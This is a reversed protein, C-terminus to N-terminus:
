QNAAAKVNDFYVEFPADAYLGPSGQRSPVPDIRELTWAAPEPEGSPWAKGRARVKGDPLNEVRLKLHYWTEPKWSFSTLATRETEPQWSQLELRQHNGFLILQYRQAVVGADGMQRRKETARVDAEVTYDHWTDPGFYARARKTFPNNALKVLVKGGDMERAAFKGTTNIWFPPVADPALSDFNEAYPPPPIVRIRAVASLGAAAAKVQGAQPKGAKPATYRGDAAVAGSLQELSWAAPEERIFRGQADFLRAHLQVSEGPKLILETPAVQLHAPAATSPALPEPRPTPPAGSKRGLCYTADASVVFVRGNSVAASAVIVEPAQESGLLKHDLIECHDNHPKLIFFKGSETGVYIKGDAIVPSAKQVTGLNQKWLQRGTVADFAFLNGGNDLQLVRDGDLIPSSYGGQFGKIAWKVGAKGIAGQSRADIAALVGMESSDLNEESHSVYATTGSLVAGTNVGRKSMEFKWVQEGTQVKLAHVAGDGSGQILLRVGDVAAILPPSYTTDFPRGGPTSVWVAEGTHKDFAFFRHSARAQAGWGSNIGSVIVLDGDIVPSVTRGGHTTVLGLDESLSRQWLLRGSESLAVLTGAVGFAYVNGTALDVVPSAWGVRHPPVDSSHITFKYEWAVAGTDANLCLVREQLTAGKGASNQLYVRDGAVVPASRGGVPARWAPAWRDPLGREASRGDRTPGRWDPWDGAFASVALVFPLFV